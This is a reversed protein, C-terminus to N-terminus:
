CIMLRKNSQITHELATAIKCFVVPNDISKRKRDGLYKKLVQYGGIYYNWLHASVGEFYKDDNIRITSNAEDYKVYRVSNNGGVGQYRVVLENLRPNNLLHLEALEKGLNALNEFLQYDETFPIRPFDLLLYEAFRQRYEDSYLVAYVYYFLQSADFNQWQGILQALLEQSINYEREQFIDAAQEDPYLYLPILLGGGRYFLNFDTITRSVFALNWLQNEGVALGQRGVVIGVNEKLMHKMVNPRPRCIFGSSRGTFYTYRTDFPRYLIPVINEDQLESDRLDRQANEVCWDSSDNRLNYARRATEPELSSFHHITQRVQEINDRITLKDRASVIGVSNLPFIEPLSKWQQYHENGPIEPRFLYFPSCPQIEQYFGNDFETSDLWDYKTQRLGYLDQHFVRALESNQVHNNDVLAPDPLAKHAEKKIMLIIATGVKIDFVNDDVSGDPCHERRRTNGHLNLVYIEDFTKMLSQRMGRFTLNDLYSHNTIMGVIGKGATHIKWQAFRLFKVYDDQLWKPNMGGLAANDVTYYSQAGDLDTKLLQETWANKNQGTGSYPPNGL